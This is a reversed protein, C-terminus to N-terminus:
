AWATHDNGPFCLCSLHRDGVWPRGLESRHDRSSSILTRSGMLCASECIKGKVGNSFAHVVEDATTEFGFDGM